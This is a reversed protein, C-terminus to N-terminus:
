VHLTYQDTTPASKTGQIQTLIYDLIYDVHESNM